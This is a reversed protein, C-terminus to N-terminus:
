KALGLLDRRLAPARTAPNLWIDFFARAFVPDDIEVAPRSAAYFRVGKGPLYVGTLQDGPGVDIFAHLMEEHWRALTEDSLPPNALHKIEDLGADALRERSIDRAYILQLAFRERYDVPLHESWLRADYVHFGMVNFKGEGSLQVPGVSSRWDAHAPTFWLVLTLSLSLSFALSRAVRRLM